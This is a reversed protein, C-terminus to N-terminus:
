LNFETALADIMREQFFPLDGLLTQEMRLRPPIKVSNKLVYLPTIQSTGLKRQFIILNGKRSRQIFTNPWDRSSPYIPVGRSDLAAPLPITLYGGANAVIVGGTEHITMTGTTIKGYTRALTSSPVVAISRQISALGEGSRRHLNNPDRAGPSWPKSHFEKLKTAVRQLYTRLDKTIQIAARDPADNLMKIVSAMGEFPDDFDKGGIVVVIGNDKAM